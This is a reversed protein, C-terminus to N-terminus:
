KLKKLCVRLGEGCIFHKNKGASRSYTRMKNKLIFCGLDCCSKIVHKSKTKKLIPNTIKDQKLM